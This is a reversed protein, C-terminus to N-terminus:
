WLVFLPLALIIASLRLLETESSRSYKAAADNKNKRSHLSSNLLSSVSFSYNENQSSTRSSTTTTRSTEYFSRGAQGEVIIGDSFITATYQGGPYNTMATVNLASLTMDSFRTNNPTTAFPITSSVIRSVNSSSNSSLPQLGQEAQAIAVQNSESNFAMYVNKLFPEGLVNYGRANNAHLNLLCAKEGTNFYMSANTSPNNSFVMLDSLPVKIRMGAFEFELTVQRDAMSCPIYWRNPDEVYIAAVQIAIQVIAQSPLYTERSTSDLLVPQLFNESTMNLSQGNQAVLYIPGMPIIPYGRSTNNTNTDYYPLTDFAILPGTFLNPDVGGIILSGCNSVMGTQDDTIDESCGGLWLSYSSAQIIGLNKLSDLFFFSDDFQASYVATDPDMIKGGLGLYGTSINNTDSSDFFSINGMYLNGSSYITTGRSSHFIESLTDNIPITDINTLNLDDKYATANFSMRDIFNFHYHTNSNVKSSTLSEQEYYENPNFCGSNLRNCESDSSGSVLIIYPNVTDIQLVQMQPPTGFSANVYYSGISDKGVSLVPLPLTSSTPHSSSMSRSKTTTGVKSSDGRVRAHTQDLCLLHLLTM